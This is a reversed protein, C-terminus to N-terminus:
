IGEPVDPESSSNISEEKALLFGTGYLNWLNCNNGASPKSGKTKQSRRTWQLLLLTNSHRTKKVMPSM